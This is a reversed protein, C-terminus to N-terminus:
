LGGNPFCRGLKSEIFQHIETDAAIIPRIPLQTNVSVKQPRM